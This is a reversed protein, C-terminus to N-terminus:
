KIYLAVRFSTNNFSRFKHMGCRYAAPCFSGEYNYNGGRVIVMSNGSREQTWEDVNGALDYIGNTSWAENSGTTVVCQPANETNWHNGWVTSDEAVEALTRASSNIFWALVTDYEAGYLMHSHLAAGTEMTSALNQAEDFTVFVWPEAGAVSQPMGDAGKSIDYRSVYFGGYKKVSELQEALEGELPEFFEKEALNEHQYARRGFKELFHEGDLTGDAPLSGVPVWVFQSGDAEREVVFGTAWNGELHRYGAPVPPNMFGNSYANPVVISHMAKIVLGDKGLESVEFTIGEDAQLTFHNFRKKM